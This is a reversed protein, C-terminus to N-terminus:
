AESRGPTSGVRELADVGEATLLDTIATRVHPAMAVTPEFGWQTQLGDMVATLRVAAEDPDVDPRLYGARAAARLASATGRRIGAYRGRFYAHAPHAPDSAEVSLRTFLDIMGPSRENNEALDIMGRLIGVGGRVRAYPTFFERDRADRDELVAQLLAEKSEFHRMLGARSIGVAQAIDRVTAGAFGSVAFHEAAIRVIARRRARGNAYGGSRM